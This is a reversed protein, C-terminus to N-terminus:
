NLSQEIEDLKINISNITAVIQKQELVPPLPILINSLVDPRLEKQNTSGEGANELYPQKLKLLAYIYKAVILESVRITTIHSDPVIPFGYIDDCEEFIGVRGLTGTGTSNIVIDNYKMFLEPPYKKLVNEDLYQALSINITGKKTNCKQAFVLTNSKETYKPAKGRKIEKTCLMNLRCWCWNEPIAFPIKETIDIIDGDVKEYYSNDEGRFIVSEKKNRKIKGQKILEEKEARIRELLVAAPEDDPNQPVLKGRIALDLIKSKAQVIIDSLESKNHEIAAILEISSNVANIIKLQEKIPPLICIYENATSITITDVTNGYTKSHIQNQLLPSDIMIRAYESLIIGYRNEFCLVSADKYYFLDDKKVIYVKGITGVGTVM